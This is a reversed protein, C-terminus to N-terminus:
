DIVHSTLLSTYHLTLDQVFITKLYIPKKTTVLVQDIVEKGTYRRNALDNM